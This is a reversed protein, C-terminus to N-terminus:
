VPDTPVPPASAVRAQETASWRAATASQSPAAKRDGIRPHAKFAEDWDEPRLGNWIKGAREKLTELSGFSERAGLM